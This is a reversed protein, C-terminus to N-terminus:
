CMGRWNGGKLFRCLAILDGRWGGKRWVLSVWLGWGRGLVSRGARGGATNGEEPHM